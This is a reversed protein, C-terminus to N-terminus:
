FSSPGFSVPLLNSLFYIDLIKKPNALWVRTDPTCFESLVQLCMGCPPTSQKADTVIMIDTFSQHGESVAKMVASREACITGGYSANEVNCGSFVKGQTTIVAAGVKFKSYPSYSKKRTAAAERHAKKISSPIKLPRASM